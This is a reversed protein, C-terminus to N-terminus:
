RRSLLQFFYGAMLSLDTRDPILYRHWSISTIRSYVILKALANASYAISIGAAAGIMGYGPILLTSATINVILVLALIYTNIEPVGRAALDYALVRSVSMMVVGPIIWKIASAADIYQQGFLIGVILDSLLVIALGATATFTFVVRCVLASVEEPKRDKQTYMLALRPAIATCAAKSFHWLAESLQVAVVFVGVTGSSTFFNLLYISARKNLLSLINGIHVKWGYSLASSAYNKLDIPRPDDNSVRLMSLTIALGCIQAVLYLTLALPVDLKSFFGFSSVLALAFFPSLILSLNFRKFDRTGQFISASYQLGLIVPFLLASFLYYERPLHPLAKDGFFFLFCYFLSLGIISATAWLYFTARKATAVTSRQSAIIYVNAQSLGFHM